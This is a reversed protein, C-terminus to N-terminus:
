RIAGRGCSSSARSGESRQLADSGGGGGASCGWPAACLGRLQCRRRRRSGRGAWYQGLGVWGRARGGAGCCPALWDSPGGLRAGGSFCCGWLARSPARRARAGFLCLLRRSLLPVGRGLPRSPGPRRHQGRTIEIRRGRAIAVHRVRVTTVVVTAVSPMLEERIHRGVSVGCRLTVRLFRHRM